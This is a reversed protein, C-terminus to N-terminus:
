LNGCSDKDGAHYNTKDLYYLKVYKEMTYFFHFCSLILGVRGDRWGSRLIYMRLAAWLPHALIDFMTARKGQERMKQAALTTYVNMKSLHHEWDRYPYHILYMSKPLRVERCEHHVQQHVVGTYYTGQAPMLRVVYDPYWGGHKLPQGWFYSLRACVYACRRDDEKVLRVIEEGLAQSVREDSDLIFIWDCRAQQVGFTQQAGWDGNLPHNVVRAGLEAAIEATSDTSLDDIVVVDEAFPVSKICDGINKEENKALILVSVPVKEM